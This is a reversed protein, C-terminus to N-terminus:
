SATLATLINFIVASATSRRKQLDITEQTCIDEFKGEPLTLELRASPLLPAACASPHLTVKDKASTCGASRFVLHFHDLMIFVISTSVSSVTPLPMQIGGKLLCPAIDMLSCSSTTECSIHQTPILGPATWNPKPLTALKATLKPEKASSLSRLM